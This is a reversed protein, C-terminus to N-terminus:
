DGMLNLHGVAKTITVALGADKAVFNGVERVDRNITGPIPVDGQYPLEGTTTVQEVVVRIVYHTSVIKRDKDAM